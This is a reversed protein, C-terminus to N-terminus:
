YRVNKIVQRTEMPNDKVDIWETTKEIKGNKVDLLENYAKEITMPSVDRGGLGGIFHQINVNTGHVAETIEACLPGTEYGLCSSRDFVGVVPVKKLMEKVEDAPFPRFMVIKLLGVKKGETRMKNVVYQATGCMSGLAVLVADADETKYSEVVSMKRGFKKAFEEMVEPVIKRANDFAARQQYRMETFDGDTTLDCIFMPDEPNLYLNKAQYEGIFEDVLKEDPLDVKQMSHSLFFGDQCVMAPTLVDAHEAVKVAMIQMDVVDQVSQCFFQMWGFERVAMTDGHECWLTWPAATGRNVVAMVIPLRLGSPMGMVESMLVLGQSSTATATREGTLAAGTIVSIASHESEVRVYEADLEGYDVMESLRESIASQPTIPYVALVSPRTLRIAEAAAYNGDLMKFM